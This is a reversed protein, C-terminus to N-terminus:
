FNAFFSRAALACFPAVAGHYNQVLLQQAATASLGGGAPTQYYAFLTAQNTKFATQIAAFTGSPTAPDVDVANILGPSAGAWFGQMTQPDYMIQTNLFFVTPDNEGGCLLYPSTPTVPAGMGTLGFIHRMDNNYLAKRLGNSPEAAAVYGTTVTPVVGDPNTAADVAYAVRFSNNILYSTGFGAAFLPTRPDNPDNPVALAVNLVADLQANGTPNMPTTSDFLATQPLKGSTFLDTLSMTSPLVTEIGSVYTSSYADAPTSYIDGYAKQYSTTLLPTFLTSGINVHGFFVADGFAELAYPGSMPASATVTKGMVQLAHQTAMAVYGGESYGTLFLKGNDSTSSTLTHPLVTRAAALADLMEGSEQVANLYPHYGLDSINYGAYNPAVVIYGQAAFMAAILVGETNAPDTIDAINILKSFQTGHAYLLIPRAGSCSNGGTPVMLAGSSKTAEGSGGKTWYTLNYFDVGCAPAGTLQLLQAGSASANLEAKFTDADVSAIRLPPDYEATGNATSTNAVSTDTNSSSCAAMLLAILIVGYLRHISYM